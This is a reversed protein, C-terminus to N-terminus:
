AVLSHSYSKAPERTPLSQSNKNMTESNALDTSPSIEFPQCTNPEGLFQRESVTYYEATPPTIDAAKSIQYPNKRLL